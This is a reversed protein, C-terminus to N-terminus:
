AGAHESGGGGAEERLRELLAVLRTVPLGVVNYFCGEVREVLAAGCGQIAYAGAKDLPEGGAVYAAVDRDSLRAVLVRTTEFGSAAAGDSCRVLSLGTYVEHWRGRIARLMRVADEPGRPKGLVAGDLVVVTDAGLVTGSARALRVVHDAPSEGPAEDEPVGTPAVEFSLGLGELIARRRPSASALVLPIETVLGSVPACPANGTPGPGAAARSVAETAADPDAAPIAPARGERSDLLLTVPGDNELAVLMHAGFRGTEVPLGEERLLAVFREFLARGQDPDAAGTFSPRRGRRCDGLLTFQSVALAARGTELASLNMRGEGDEFVRLGAVKAALWAADEETDGRAVGLLVLLGPGVSGTEVGDVTVGARAVRQVVARVLGGEPV